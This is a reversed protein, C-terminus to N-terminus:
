VEQLNMVLKVGIERSKAEITKIMKELGDVDRILNSQIRPELYNDANAIFSSLDEISDKLDDCQYQIKSILDTAEDKISRSIKVKKMQESRVFNLANFKLNSEKFKVDKIFVQIGRPLIVEEPEDFIEIIDFDYKYLTRDYPWWQKREEETILHKNKLKRFEDLDIPEIDTLKIIGLAKNNEVLVLPIDLMNYFPRSKIILKKKGKAILTGHPPVLYIGQM